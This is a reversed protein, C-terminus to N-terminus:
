GSMKKPVGWSVTVIRRSFQRVCSYQNGKIFMKSGLEIFMKSAGDLFKRKAEKTFIDSKENFKQILKSKLM